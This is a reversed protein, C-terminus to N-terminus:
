RRKVYLPASVGQRNVVYGQMTHFDGNLVLNVQFPLGPVPAPRGDMTFDAKDCRAALNQGHLAGFFYNREHFQHFM